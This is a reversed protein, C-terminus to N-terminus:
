NQNCALNGGTRYSYGIQWINDLQTAVIGNLKKNSISFPIVTEIINGAKDCYFKKGDDDMVTRWGNALWESIIKKNEESTYKDELTYVYVVYSTTVIESVKTPNYSKFWKNIENKGNIQAQQIKNPEKKLGGCGVLSLILSYLLIKKM